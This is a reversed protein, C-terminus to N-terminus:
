SHRVAGPFPHSSPDLQASPSPLSPLASMVLVSGLAYKTTDLERIWEGPCRSSTRIPKGNSEVEALRAEAEDVARQPGATYRRRVEVLKAEITRVEADIADIAENAEKLASQKEAILRELETMRERDGKEERFGVTQDLERQIRQRL